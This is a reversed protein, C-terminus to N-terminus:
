YFFSHSRPCIGYELDLFPFICSSGSCRTTSPLGSTSLALAIFYTHILRVCIGVSCTGLSWLQFYKLLLYTFSFQVTVRLICYIDTLGYQYLYISSYIFPSLVWMLWASNWIILTCIKDDLLHLM